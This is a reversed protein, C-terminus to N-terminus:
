SSQYALNLSSYVYLTSVLEALYDLVCRPYDFVALQAFIVLQSSFKSAESTLMRDKRIRSM